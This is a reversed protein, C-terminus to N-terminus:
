YVGGDGGKKCKREAEGESRVGLNQGVSVKEGDEEDFKRYGVM